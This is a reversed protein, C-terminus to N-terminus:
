HRDECVSDENYVVFVLSYVSFVTNVKDVKM